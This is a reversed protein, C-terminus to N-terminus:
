RHGSDSIVIKVECDKFSTNSTRNQKKKSRNLLTPNLVVELANEQEKRVVLGRKHVGLKRSGCCFGGM